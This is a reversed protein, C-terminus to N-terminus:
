PSRPFYNWQLFPLLLARKERDEGLKLLCRYVSVAAKSHDSHRVEEKMVRFPCVVLILQTVSLSFEDRVKTMFTARNEFNRTFTMHLRLSTSVNKPWSTIRSLYLTGRPQSKSAKSAGLWNEVRVRTARRFRLSLHIWGLCLLMKHATHKNNMSQTKCMFKNSHGWLNFIHGVAMQRVASVCYDWRSDIQNKSTWRSM